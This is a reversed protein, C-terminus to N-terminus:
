AAAVVYALAFAVLTAGGALALSLRRHAVVEGFRSTRAVAEPMAALALLLTALAVGALLLPRIWDSSSGSTRTYPAAQTAGGGSSQSGNGSGGNSRPKFPAGGHGSRGAPASGKASSGGGGAALLQSSPAFAASGAPAPVCVNEARAAALAAADPSGSEVVILTVSRRRPQLVGRPVIRYTGPTLAHRGVKTGITVTNLGSHGHVRIRGALQCEPAIEQVILTVRGSTALRFTITTTQLGHLSLYPRKLRLHTPRPRTTRVRTTTSSATSGTSGSSAVPSSGASVGSTGSVGTAGTASSVPGSGTASGVASSAAASASSVHQAVSPTQVKPVTISPVTVTPVSVTPTPVPPLDAAATGAGLAVAVVAAAGIWIRV